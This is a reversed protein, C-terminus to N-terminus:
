TRADGALDLADALRDLTERHPFRREGRELAGVAQASLGSAEALTEQTLGAARRLRRLRAGFSEM